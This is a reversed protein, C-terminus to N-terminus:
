HLLPFPSPTGTTTTTLAPSPAVGDDRPPSSSPSPHLCLSAPPLRLSPALPCSPPHSLALPPPRSLALLPPRSLALSPSLPHSLSPSLPLPLPPPPLALFPSLALSPPRSPSPPLAPDPNREEKRYYVQHLREAGETAQIHAATLHAHRLRAYWRQVMQVPHMLASWGLETITSVSSGDNSPAHPADSDAKTTLKFAGTAGKWVSKAKERQEKRRQARLLRKQQRKNERVGM